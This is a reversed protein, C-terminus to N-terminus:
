DHRRDEEAAAEAFMEAIRQAAEDSPPEYEPPWDQAAASRKLWMGIFPGALCALAFWLILFAAAQELWRPIM